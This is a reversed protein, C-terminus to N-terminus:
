QRSAALLHIPKADMNVVLIMHVHQDEKDFLHQGVRPSASLSNAIHVLLYSSLMIYWATMTMGNSWSSLLCACRSATLMCM